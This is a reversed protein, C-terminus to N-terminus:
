FHLSRGKKGSEESHSAQGKPGLDVRFLLLCRSFRDIQHVNAADTASTSGTHCFLGTLGEALHVVDFVNDDVGRSTTHNLHFFAHGWGNFSDIFSETTSALFDFSHSLAGMGHRM